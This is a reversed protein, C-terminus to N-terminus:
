IFLRYPILLSHPTATRQTRGVFGGGGPVLGVLALAVGACRLAVLGLRRLGGVSSRGASTNVVSPMSACRQRM